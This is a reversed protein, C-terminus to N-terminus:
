EVGPGTRFVVFVRLQHLKRKLPPSLPCGPSGGFATGRTESSLPGPMRLVTPAVPSWGLHGWTQLASAAPIGERGRNWCQCSSGLQRSGGHTHPPPSGWTPVSPGRLSHWLPVAKWLRGRLKSPKAPPETTYRGGALAPSAPKIGPNPPDGAPPCSLGSWYEQRSFDMSPPAQRVVARPSAFSSSLLSHGFLLWLKCSISIWAGPLHEGFTLEFPRVTLECGWWRGQSPPLGRAQCGESKWPLHHPPCRERSDNDWGLVWPGLYLRLSRRVGGGSPVPCGHLPLRLVKRTLM